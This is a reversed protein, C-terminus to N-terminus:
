KFFTNQNDNLTKLINENTELVVESGDSMTLCVRKGCKLADIAAYFEDMSDVKKGNIAIIVDFPKLQNGRIPTSLRFVLIGDASPLVRNCYLVDNALKQRLSDDLWYVVLGLASDLRSFPMKLADFNLCIDLKKTVNHSM